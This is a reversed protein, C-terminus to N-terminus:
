SNLFLIGERLSKQEKGFCFRFPDSVPVCCDRGVHRRGGARQRRREQRQGVPRLVARVEGRVRRETRSPRGPTKGKGGLLNKLDWGHGRPALIPQPLPPSPSFSSQARRLPFLHLRGSRHPVRPQTRSAPSRKEGATRRRESGKERGAGRSRPRVAGPTPLRDGGRAGRGGGTGASCGVAAADRRPEGSRPLPPVACPRVGAAGGAGAAGMWPGACGCPQRGCGRGAPLAGSGRPASESGSGGLSANRETSVRRASGRSPPPLASGDSGAGCRAGGTGRTRRRPGRPRRPRPWLAAPLPRAPRASRPRSPRLRRPSRRSKYHPRPPSPLTGRTHPPAGTPAGSVRTSGPICIHARGGPLGESDCCRLVARTAFSRM